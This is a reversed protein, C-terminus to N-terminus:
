WRSQNMLFEAKNTLMARQVRPVQVVLWGGLLVLVALAIAKRVMM